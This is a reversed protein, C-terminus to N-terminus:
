STNGDLIGPDGVENRASRHALDVHDSIRIGRIIQAEEGSNWEPFEGDGVVVQM